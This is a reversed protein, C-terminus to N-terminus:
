EALDAPEDADALTTPDLGAVEVVPLGEGARRLSLEGARHAATLVDRAQRRWAAHTWQRHGDAIPLAVVADLRARLAEVTAAMSAADPAVLDCAVVLVIDESAATLATLTAPLPGEGPWGDPVPRLGLPGLAGPDGGIALVETAGAARLAGAVRAAMPVGDVPLLAKDRGMRRSAGGCLVAGTFPAAPM